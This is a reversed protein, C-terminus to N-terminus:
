VDIHVDLNNNYGFLFYTSHHLLSVLRVTPTGDPTQSTEQDLLPRADDSLPVIQAESAKREIEHCECQCEDPKVYQYITTTEQGSLSTTTVTEKNNNPVTTIRKPPKRKEPINEFNVWQPPAVGRPPLPPPPLDEPLGSNPLDPLWASDSEKLNHEFEFWNKGSSNSVRRPSKPKQIRERSDKRPLSIKLKEGRQQGTPTDPEHGCYDELFSPNLPTTSRPREVPYTKVEMNAREKVPILPVGVSREEPLTTPVYPLEDEYSLQSVLGKSESDDIALNRPLLHNMIRTSETAESDRDSGSSALHEETSVTSTRQPSPQADSVDLSKHESELSRERSLTRRECKQQMKEHIVKQEAMVEEANTILKSHRNPNDSKKVKTVVTQPVASAPVPDSKTPVEDSSSQRDIKTDKLIIVDEPAREKAGSSVKPRADVAPSVTSEASQVSFQAAVAQEESGSGLTSTTKFAIHKKERTPPTALPIPTPTPTPAPPDPVVVEIPREPSAVEQAPTPPLQEVIVNKPRNEQPPRHVEPAVPIATATAVTCSPAPAREVQVECVLEVSEESPSRLPIRVSGDPYEIRRSKRVKPRVVPEAKLIPIATAPVIEELKKPPKPSTEPTKALKNMSRLISRGLETEHLQNDLMKNYQAIADDEAKLEKEDPPTHLPIHISTGDDYYRLRPKGGAAQSDSLSVQSSHEMRREETEIPSASKSKSASGSRKTKFIGLVSRQKSPTQNPSVDGKRSSSRHGQSDDNERTSTSSKKRAQLATPSDQDKAKFLSCFSNKRSTTVGPAPSPSRSGAVDKGFMHRGPKPSVSPKDSNRRVDDKNARQEPRISLSAPPRKVSSEDQGADCVQEGEAVGHDDYLHDPKLNIRIYETGCKTRGVIKKAPDGTKGAGQSQPKTIKVEPTKRKTKPAAGSGPQQQQQQQVVVSGNDLDKPVAQNTPTTASTVGKAIVAETPDNMRALLLQELADAASQREIASIVTCATDLSSDSPKPGCFSTELLLKHPSPTRSTGSIASLRSVASGQSGVSSIRSTRGSICLLAAVESSVSDKRQQYPDM